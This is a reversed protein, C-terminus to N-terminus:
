VGKAIAALKSAVSSTAHIGDCSSCSYGPRGDERIHNYSNIVFLNPYSSELSKIEEGRGKREEVRSKYFAEGKLDTGLGRGSGDFSPPIPTIWVIKIRPNISLILDILDM